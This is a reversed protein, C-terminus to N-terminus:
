ATRSCVRRVFARFWAIEGPRFEGLVAYGAVIGVVILALKVVLWAGAAPWSTAALYVAASILISRALTSGPPSVGLFRHALVLAVLAGTIELGATVSAAGLAGYRPIFTLHGALALALMPAALLVSLVAREAAILMVFTISITVAAVKGVILCALLPGTPAFDAGFILRVIENSAGSVMAAFPMMYRRRVSIATGLAEPDHLDTSFLANLVIRQSLASMAAAVDIAREERWGAIAETTTHVMMDAFGAIAKQHFAPQMMRRQNVHAEGSMTLLGEGSLRKGRPSTLRPSKTYNRANTALVYRVDEANNLLFTREGIRLEVVDGYRAACRTLFGLRDRLFQPVHGLIPYAAPGRDAFHTRM